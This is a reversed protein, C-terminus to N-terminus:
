SLKCEGSNIENLWKQLKYLTISVVVKRDLVRQITPRSVGSLKAIKATSLPHKVCLALLEDVVCDAMQQRTTKRLDSNEM